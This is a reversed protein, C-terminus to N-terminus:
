NIRLFVGDLLNILKVQMPISRFSARTLVPRPIHLRRRAQFQDYLCTQGGAIAHERNMGAPKKLNVPGAKQTPNHERAM